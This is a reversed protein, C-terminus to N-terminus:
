KKLSTKHGKKNKRTMITIPKNGLNGCHDSEHQFIISNLGGVTKKFHKWNGEEDFGDWHFTITKHRKIPIEIGPYTLCGEKFVIRSSGSPFYRPNFYMKFTNKETTMDRAVFYKKGVGLQSASLGLGDKIETFAYLDDKDEYVVRAEEETINEVEITEAVEAEVITYKEQIREIEKQFAEQLIKKDEDTLETKDQTEEIKEKLEEM